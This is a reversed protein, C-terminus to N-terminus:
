HLTFPAYWILYIGLTPPLLGLLLWPTLLKSALILRNGVVSLVGVIGSMVLLGIADGPRGGNHIYTAAIPLALDAHLIVTLFVIAGVRRRVRDLERQELKRREARARREALTSDAPTSDAPTSGAPTSGAPTSGAPTSEAPPADEAPTTLHGEM